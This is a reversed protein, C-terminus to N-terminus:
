SSWWCNGQMCKWLKGHTLWVLHFERSINANNAKIKSGSLRFWFNVYNHQKMALGQDLTQNESWQSQRVAVSVNFGATWCYGFTFLNKSLCQFFSSETMLPTSLLLRQASRAIWISWSINGWQLLWSVSLLRKM